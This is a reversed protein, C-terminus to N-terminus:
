NLLQTAAGTWFVSILPQPSGNRQGRSVGRDVFTPVLKASQRRGNQRYLESASQPWPTIQCVTGQSAIMCHPKWKYKSCNYLQRHVTISNRIPVYIYIHSQLFYNECMKHVAYNYHHHPFCCCYMLAPVMTIWAGQGSRIKQADPTITLICQHTM